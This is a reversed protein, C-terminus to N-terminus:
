TETFYDRIRDAIEDKTGSVPLGYTEAARQLDAKSLRDLDGLRIREPVAAPATAGAEVYLAHRRGFQLTTQELLEAALDDPVELTDGRELRVPGDELHVVAGALAWLRPNIEITTM